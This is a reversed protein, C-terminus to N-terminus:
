VKLEALEPAVAEEEEKKKRRSSSCRRSSSTSTFDRMTASVILKEGLREPCNM